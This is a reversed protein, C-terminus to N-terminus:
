TVSVLHGSFQTLSNTTVAVVAGCYYQVKVTGGAALQVFLANQVSGTSAQMDTGRLYESGNVIFAVFLRSTAANLNISANFQYFGAVPATFTYTSTSYNNSTDFVKTDYPLDTFTTAVTNYAAARYVFFKYPNYLLNSGIKANADLPMLQNATATTNAAIGNVSQANGGTSVAYLYSVRVIAGTLPATDVTFTGATPSVETVNTTPAQLLGNIYVELSGSIYGRATTFSANSGNVAGTPTEQNIRYDVGQMIVSSGVTYDVLLVDGTAPAYLMTFGTLAANETYDNGAGSKLRQGNLYVSLSGPTFAAAITFATNSGNITGSPVENQVISGNYLDSAFITNSIRWGIAISKAGGTGQNRVITLTNTSVATVLIKESNAVTPLINDPHATAYFPPTPMLAGEGAQLTLSTGSTAPSPATAVTGTAYDKLNAM